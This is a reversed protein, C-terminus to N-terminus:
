IWLIPPETPGLYTRSEKSFIFIQQTTEASPFICVLPRPLVHYPDLQPSFCPIQTTPNRVVMFLSLIDSRHIFRISILTSPVRLYINKCICHITKNTHLISVFM